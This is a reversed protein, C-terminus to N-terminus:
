EFDVEAIKSNGSVELSDVIQVITLASLQDWEQVAKQQTNHLRMHINLEDDQWVNLYGYKFKNEIDFVVSGRGSKYSIGKLNTIVIHETGHKETVVFCLKVGNIMTLFRAPLRGTAETTQVEEDTKILM